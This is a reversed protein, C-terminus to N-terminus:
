CFKPSSISYRLSLFLLPSASLGVSLEYVSPLREYFLEALFLLSLRRGKIVIDPSPSLTKGSGPLAVPVGKQPPIAIAKAWDALRRVLLRREVCSATNRSRRGM